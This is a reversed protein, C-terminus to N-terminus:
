NGGVRVYNNGIYKKHNEEIQKDEAIKREFQAEYLKDLQRGFSKEYLYHAHEDSLIVSKKTQPHTNTVWQDLTSM